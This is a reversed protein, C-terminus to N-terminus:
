IKKIAIEPLGPKSDIFKYLQVLTEGDSNKRLATFQKKNIEWVLEFCLQIEEPLNEYMKALTKADHIKFGVTDKVKLLLDVTSFDDDYAYTQLEYVKRGDSKDYVSSAGYCKAMEIFKLRLDMELKKMSKMIEVIYEYDNLDYCYGDKEVFVTKDAVSDVSGISRESLIEQVDIEKDSM